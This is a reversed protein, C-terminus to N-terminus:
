RATHYLILNKTNNNSTWTIKLIAGSLSWETNRSYNIDASINFILVNDICTWKGEYSVSNNESDLIISSFSGDPMFNIKNGENDSWTGYLPSPTYCSTFFTTIFLAAIIVLIGSINKKM